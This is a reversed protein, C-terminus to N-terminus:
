QGNEKELGYDEAIEDWLKDLDPYEIPIDKDYGFKDCLVNTIEQLYKGREENNDFGGKWTDEFQHSYFTEELPQDSVRLHGHRLRIYALYKQEGTAHEYIADYQEPCAMCTNVFVIKGM